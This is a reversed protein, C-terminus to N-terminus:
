IGIQIGNLGGTQVKAWVTSQINEIFNELGVGISAGFISSVKKRSNPNRLQRVTHM